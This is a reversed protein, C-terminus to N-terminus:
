HLNRRTAIIKGIEVIGQLLLASLGIPLLLQPLYLPTELVSPWLVNQVYSNRVLLISRWFIAGVAGLGIILLILDLWVQLKVPLRKTLIDVKVHRGAKLTEAAAFFVVLVLLYAGVEDAILTSRRFLYRGVVDVTVLLMMAFVGWRAIHFLGASFFESLKRSLRIVIM